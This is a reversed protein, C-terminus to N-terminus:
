RVTARYVTGFRYGWLEPSNRLQGWIASYNDLLLRRTTGLSPFRGLSLGVQGNDAVISATQAVHRRTHALNPWSGIVHKAKPWCNASTPWRQVANPRIQGSRARCPWLNTSHQVVYNPRVKALGVGALRHGSRGLKTLNSGIRTERSLHEVAKPRSKPLKPAAPSSAPIQPPYRKPVQISCINPLKRTLSEGQWSRGRRRRRCLLASARSSPWQGMRGCIGVAHCM